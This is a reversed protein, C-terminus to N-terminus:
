RNQSARGVEPAGREIERWRAPAAVALFDDALFKAVLDRAIKEDLYLLQADIEM